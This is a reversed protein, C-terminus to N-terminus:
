WGEGDPEDRPGARPLDRLVELFEPRQAKGFPRDPLPQRIRVAVDRRPLDLAVEDGPQLERTPKAPQGNVRVLGRRCAESALVRRKILGSLQLFKDLRM